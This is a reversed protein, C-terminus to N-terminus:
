EVFAFKGIFLIQNNTKDKIVYTFPKDLVLDIPEDQRPASTAGVMIATVAAAETGKEDVEIYAKQLADMLFANQTLMHPMISERESFATNMGLKTMIQKLPITTETKFKPMSLNVMKSLFETNELTRCPNEVDEEGMLVYMSMNLHTDIDPTYPLEIIKIGDHEAYNFRATRNMFDTEKAEGNKQYFLQKKTFADNFENRWGAKFYVANVLLSVFENTELITPIKGRTKENVWSNVTKVANSDNVVSATGNYFDSITKEYNELFKIGNARTENLYIANASEIKIEKAKSYCDIVEKVSQNYSNLDEIGLVDTMEQKTIGDAGNAAMSFAVKASYPSFIYNKNQPMEKNLRDEFSLAAPVGCGMFSFDEENFKGSESLANKLLRGDKCLTTLASYMVRLVDSRTMPKDSIIEKIYNDTILQAKDCAEYANETTTDTYGMMCMLMKAFEKGTVTRDPAFETETVGHVLKLAVAKEIDVKAWHGDIDSFNTPTPAADFPCIRLIFAVAEARTVDRELSFGDGTGKLIGLQNLGKPILDEDKLTTAGVTCLVM